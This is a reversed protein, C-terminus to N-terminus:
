DLFLTTLVRATFPYAPTYDIGECGGFGGSALDVAVRGNSGCLRPPLRSLPTGVAPENSLRSVTDFQASRFVGNMLNEIDLAVDFRRHRYGLHVDVQTFGPAQIAGDDSAPRNGIGFFRL